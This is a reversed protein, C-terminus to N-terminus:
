AGKTEAPKKFRFGEAWEWGLFGPHTALTAETAGGLIQAHQDLSIQLSAKKKGATWPELEAFYATSNTRTGSRQYTRTVRATRFVASSSDAAGNVLILLGLSLFFFPLATLATFVFLFARRSPGPLWRSQVFGAAATLPLALWLAPFPGTAYVPPYRRAGLIFVVLAAAFVGVILAFPKKSVTPPPVFGKEVGSKDRSRRFFILAYLVATGAAGAALVRPGAQRAGCLILTAGMALAAAPEFYFSKGRGVGTAYVGKGVLRQHYPGAVSKHRILANGGLVLLVFGTFVSFIAIQSGAAGSVPGLRFFFHSALGFVLGIVAGLVGPHIKKM